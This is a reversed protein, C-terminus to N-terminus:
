TLRVAFAVSGSLSGSRIAQALDADLAQSRPQISLVSNGFGEPLETVKV